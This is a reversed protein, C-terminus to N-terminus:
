KVVDDESGSDVCLGAEDDDDDGGDDDHEKVLTSLRLKVVIESM